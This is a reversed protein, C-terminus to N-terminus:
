FRDLMRQVAAEGETDEREPPIPRKLNCVWHAKRWDDRYPNGCVPCRPCESLSKVEERLTKM